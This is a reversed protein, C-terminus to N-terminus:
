SNRSYQDCVRQTSTIPVMIKGSMVYTTTTQNHSATCSWHTKNLHLKPDQEEAYFAWPLCGLLVCIPFGILLMAAALGTDGEDFMTWVAWLPLLFCGVSWMVGLIALFIM